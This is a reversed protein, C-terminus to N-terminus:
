FVGCYMSADEDTGLVELGESFKVTKLSTCWAFSGRAIKRLSAPFEVSKLGSRAFASIGIKEFGEPFTIQTLNTCWNFAEEGITKLASGAEFLVEKLDECRRFAHERIKEASKPVVVREIGTECFSGSRIKELKSGLAFTVRTLSKCGYFADAGIERVSAPIEVKEVESCCFWHNGIRETGEPIVMEKM